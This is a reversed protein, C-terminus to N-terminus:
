NAFGREQFDRPARVLFAQVCGCVLVFVKVMSFCIVGIEVGTNKIAKSALYMELAAAAISNFFVVALAIYFKRVDSM